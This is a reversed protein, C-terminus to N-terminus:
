VPSVTFFLFLWIHEHYKGSSPCVSCSRLLYYFHQAFLVGTSCVTHLFTSCVIYRHLLCYVQQAFLVGTSCVTSINILCYVQPAFPVGTSCVICRHLLCYQVALHRAFLEAASCVIWSSLLCPLQHLFLGAWLLYIQQQGFPIKPQAFIVAASWVICCM